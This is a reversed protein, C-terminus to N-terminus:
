PEVPLDFRTIYDLNMFNIVFHAAIPAGLDGLWRSLGGFVLGIVFASFTWPLFRAGPGIHLVAFVLASPVLGWWPQLAGRFLLEEGLSSAVALIFVDRASLHGLLGRFDRHLRRAWDFRHVSLRTAFVVALGLAIGVFPSALLKWTTSVGAVRYIDWDGRVAGIVVALLSLGAYLGVILENRSAPGRRRDSLEM